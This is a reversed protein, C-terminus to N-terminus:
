YESISGSFSFSIKPTLCYSTLEDMYGDDDTTYEMDVLDIFDADAIAGGFTGSVSSVSLKGSYVEFQSDDTILLVCNYSYCEVYGDDDSVTYSYYGTEDEFDDWNVNTRDSFTAPAEDWSLGIYLSSDDNYFDIFSGYDESSYDYLYATGSVSSGAYDGLDETCVDADGTNGSDGSGDAVCMNDSGCSSGTGCAGCHVTRAEGCNDTGSYSGCERTGCFADDSQATCGEDGSTDGDGTPGNAGADAAGNSNSPNDDDDDGGCAVGFTCLSAMMMALLIKKM